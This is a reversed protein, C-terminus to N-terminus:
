LPKQLIIAPKRSILFNQKPLVRLGTRTAISNAYMYDRKKKYMLKPVITHVIGGPKLWSATNHWFQKSTLVETPAYMVFIHDFEKEFFDIHNETVDLVYTPNCSPDIDVYTGNAYFENRNLHLAKYGPCKRDHSRGHAVFLVEKM